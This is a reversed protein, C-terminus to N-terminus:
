KAAEQRVPREPLRRLPLDLEDVGLRRATVSFGEADPWVEIKYDPPESGFEIEEFLPSLAAYDITRTAYSMEARVVIMCAFVARLQAPQEDILDASIRFTGIRRLEKPM